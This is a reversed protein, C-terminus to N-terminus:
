GQWICIGVMIPSLIFLGIIIGFISGGIVGSEPKWFKIMM